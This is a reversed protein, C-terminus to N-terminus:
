KSILRPGFGIAFEKVEMGTKKAAILHGLEHVLIMLNFAILAILIGM